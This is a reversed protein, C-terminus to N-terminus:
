KEVKKDFSKIKGYNSVLDYLCLSALCVCFLIENIYRWTVNGTAGVIWLVIYWVILWPSFFDDPIYKGAKKYEQKLLVIRILYGGNLKWSILVSGFLFCLWSVLDFYLLFSFVFSVFIYKLHVAVHSEKFKAHLYHVNFVIDKAQTLMAGVAFLYCAFVSAPHNRSFLLIVFGLTLQATMVIIQAHVGSIPPVIWKGERGYLVLQANYIFATAPVSFATITVHVSQVMLVLITSAILMTNAADLSHDLIEGLKSCQNTKRAHLGDLSDAVLSLFLLV